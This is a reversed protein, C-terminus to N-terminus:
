ADSTKRYGRLGASVFCDAKAFSFWICLLDEFFPESRKQGVGLAFSLVSLVSVCATDSVRPVFALRLRCASHRADMGVDEGEVSGVVGPNVQECTSKRALRETDGPLSEALCIVTRDPRFHQSNNPFGLGSPDNTFINSSDDRHFEVIDKRVQFADAVGRPRKNNRSTGDIGSV